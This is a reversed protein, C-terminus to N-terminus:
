SASVALFPEVVALVRNTASLGTRHDLGAARAPEAGSAARYTPFGRRVEPLAM